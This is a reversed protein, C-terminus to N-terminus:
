RNPMARHHGSQLMIITGNDTKRVVLKGGQKLIESADLSFEEIDNHLRGLELWNEKEDKPSNQKMHNEMANSRGAMTMPLWQEPTVITSCEEGGHLRTSTIGKAVPVHLHCLGGIIREGFEVLAKPGSARKSRHAVDELTVQGWAQWCGRAHGVHGTSGARHRRPEGPRAISHRSHVQALRHELVCAGFACLHVPDMLIQARQTKVAGLVRNKRAVVAQVM